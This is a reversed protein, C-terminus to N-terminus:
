FFFRFVQTQALFISTQVSECNECNELGRQFELKGISISSLLLSLVPGAGYHNTILFICTGQLPMLVISSIHVPFLSCSAPNVSVIWFLLRPCSIEGAASPWATCGELVTFIHAYISLGFCKKKWKFQCESPLM